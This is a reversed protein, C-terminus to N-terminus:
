TLSIHRIGSSGYRDQRVGSEYFIGAKQEKKRHRAANPCTAFHSIYGVGTADQTGAGVLEGSLVEGNPTVIKEKGDGQRYTVLQPNCPMNKGAVTKIWIVQQGCSRCKGFNDRNGM